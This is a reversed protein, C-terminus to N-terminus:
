FAFLSEHDAFLQDFNLIALVRLLVAVQNRAAHLMTARLPLTRPLGVLLLCCM